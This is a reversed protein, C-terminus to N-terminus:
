RVRVTARNTGWAKADKCSPTWIDIHWGRIWAGTDEARYVRTFPGVSVRVSKGLVVTHPDVAVAGDHVPKANYMRGQLCYYTVLATHPASWGALAAALLAAAIM